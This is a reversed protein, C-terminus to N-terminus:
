ARSARRQAKRTQRAQKNAARRMSELKRKHHEWNLSGLWPRRIRPAPKFVERNAAEAKIAKRLKGALVPDLSPKEEYIM